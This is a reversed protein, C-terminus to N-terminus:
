IKALLGLSGSFLSGPRRPRVAQMAASRSRRSLLATSIGGWPFRPFSWFRSKWAEWWAQFGPLFCLRRIEVNGGRRSRSRDIERPLLFSFGHGPGFKLQGMGTVELVM